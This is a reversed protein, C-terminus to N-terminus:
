NNLLKKHANHRQSMLQNRLQNYDYGALQVKTSMPGRKIPFEQLVYRTAERVGDWALTHPM